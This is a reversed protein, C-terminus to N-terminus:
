YPPGAAYYFRIPILNQGILYDAEGIPPYRPLLQGNLQMGLMRHKGAHGHVTVHKLLRYSSCFARSYVRMPSYLLNINIVIDVCM